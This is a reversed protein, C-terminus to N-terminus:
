LATTLDCNVTEERPGMEDLWTSKGYVGKKGKREGAFRDYAVRYGAEFGKKYEADILGQLFIINGRQQATLEGPNYARILKAEKDWYLRTSM